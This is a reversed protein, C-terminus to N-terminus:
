RERQYLQGNDPELRIAENYDKLAKEYHGHSFYEDAREKLKERKSVEISIYKM